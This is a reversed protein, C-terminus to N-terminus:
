ASNDEQTESNVSDEPIGSSDNLVGNTDPLAPVEEDEQVARDASSEKEAKREARRRAKEEQRRRRAYDRQRKTSSTRKRAM